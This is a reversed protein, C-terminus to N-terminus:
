AGTCWYFFEHFDGIFSNRQNIQPKKKHQFKWHKSHFTKSWNLFWAIFITYIRTTYHSLLGLACNRHRLKWVSRLIENRKIRNFRLQSWSKEIKTFNLAIQIANLKFFFEIRQKKSYQIWNWFWVISIKSITKLGRRKDTSFRRLKKGLKTSFM